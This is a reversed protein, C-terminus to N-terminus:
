KNHVDESVLSVYLELDPKVDIINNKAKKQSKKCM